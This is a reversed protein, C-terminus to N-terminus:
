DMVTNAETSDVQTSVYKLIVSILKYLLNTGTYIDLVLSSFM